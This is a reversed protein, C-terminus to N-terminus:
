LTELPAEPKMEVFGIVHFRGLVKRGVHVNFAAAYVRCWFIGTPNVYDFQQEDDAEAEDSPVTQRYTLEPPFAPPNFTVTVARVEDPDLRFRLPRRGGYGLDFAGDGTEPSETWDPGDFRPPPGDAPAWTRLTERLESAEDDSMPVPRERAWEMQANFQVGVGSTNTM